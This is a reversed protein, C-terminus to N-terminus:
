RSSRLVVDRRRAVFWARRATNPPVNERLRHRDSPLHEDDRWSGSARCAAYLMANDLGFWAYFPDASYLSRFERLTLGIRGSRGFKPKYSASVRVRELIIDIYRADRSQADENVATLNVHGAGVKAIGGPAQSLHQRRHEVPLREAEAHAAIEAKGSGVAGLVHASAARTTFSAPTM